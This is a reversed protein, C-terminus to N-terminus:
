IDRTKTLDFDQIKRAVCKVSGREFSDLGLKM